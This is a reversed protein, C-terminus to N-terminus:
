RQNETPALRQGAGSQDGVPIGTRTDDVFIGTSGADVPTGTADAHGGAGTANAQAEDVAGHLRRARLRADGPDVVAEIVMAREAGFAQVLAEVLEARTRVRAFPLGFARVAHCLELAQPM